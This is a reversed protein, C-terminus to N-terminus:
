EIAGLVQMIKKLSDIQPILLVECTINAESLTARTQMVFIYEAGTEEASFEKVIGTFVENGKDYKLEPMSARAQLDLKQTIATVYAGSLINGLAMMLGQARADYKKTTGAPRKEVIDIMKLGEEYPVLIVIQGTIAGTLNIELKIYTSEDKYSKFIEKLPKIEINQLEVKVESKLVQGLARTANESCANGLENLAKKQKQNLEFSPMKKGALVKNLCNRIDDPNFPKNLFANVAGPTVSIARDFTDEDLLGTIIIYKVEPRRAKMYHFAEIGDIGPMKVDMFVIDFPERAFDDLGEKGNEALTVQYGESDLFEGLAERINKEDDVVLVKLM